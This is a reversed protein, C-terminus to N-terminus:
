APPTPPNLLADTITAAASKTWRIRANIKEVRLLDAASAHTALIDFARVIRFRGKLILFRGQRREGLSLQLRDLAQVVLVEPRLYM